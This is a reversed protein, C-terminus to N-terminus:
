CIGACGCLLFLGVAASAPSDPPKQVLRAYTIAANESLVNIELRRDRLQPSPPPRYNDNKLEGEEGLEGLESEHFSEKVYM